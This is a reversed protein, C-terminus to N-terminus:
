RARVRPEAKLRHFDEAQSATHAHAFGSGGAEELLLASGDHVGICQRPFQDLGTLRSEGLDLGGEPFIEDRRVPLKSPIFQCLNDEGIRRCPLLQFGNEMGADPFSPQGPNCGPAPLIARQRHHDDGQQKLRVGFRLKIFDDTDCAGTGRLALPQNGTAPGAFLDGLAEGRLPGDLLFHGM